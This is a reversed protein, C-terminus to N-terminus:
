RHHLVAEVKLRSKKELEYLRYRTEKFGQSAKKNLLKTIEELVRLSEKARQANAYFVDPIDKRKGERFATKKGIDKKVNRSKLLNLSGRVDLRNALASIRHRLSKFSRTARKDNLMFRTIDECVRIGERSRNLNADILRLLKHM